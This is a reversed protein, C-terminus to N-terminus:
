AVLDPDPWFVGNALTLVDSGSTLQIEWYYPQDAVLPTSGVMDAPLANPVIRGVINEYPADCEVLVLGGNTTSLDILAPAVSSKSAKVQFQVAYPTLDTPVGAQDVWEFYINNANWSDGM